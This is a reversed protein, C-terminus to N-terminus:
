APQSSPVDAEPHPAFLVLHKEVEEGDYWNSHPVGAPMFILNNPGVSLREGDIEMEITGTLVFFFSDFALTVIGQSSLINPM